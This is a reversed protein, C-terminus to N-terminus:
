SWDKYQFTKLIKGTCVKSKVVCEIPKLLDQVDSYDGNFFARALRIREKIHLQKYRKDSEVWKLIFRFREKKYNM